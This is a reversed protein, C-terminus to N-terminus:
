QEYIMDDKKGIKSAAGQILGQVAPSGLLKLFGSEEGTGSKLDGVQELIEGVKDLDLGALQQVLNTPQAPATQKIEQLQIKEGAKVQAYKIKHDYEQTKYDMRLAWKRTDHRMYAFSVIIGGITTVIAMYLLEM